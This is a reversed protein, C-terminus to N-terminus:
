QLTQEVLGMEACTMLKGIDLVILMPQQVAGIPAPKAQHM